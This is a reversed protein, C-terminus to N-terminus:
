FCIQPTVSFPIRDSYPMSAPQRLPLHSSTCSLCRIFVFGRASLAGCGRLFVVHSFLKSGSLARELLMMRHSDVMEVCIQSTASRNRGASQVMAQQGIANLTPEPKGSIGTAPTIRCGVCTVPLDGPSHRGDPIDKAKPWRCDPPTPFPAEASVVAAATRYPRAHVVTRYAGVWGRKSWSVPQGVQQVQVPYTPDDVILGKEARQRSTQRQDPRKVVHLWEGSAAVM